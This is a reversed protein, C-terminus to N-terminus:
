CCAGIADAHGRARVAVAPCNATRRCTPAACRGGAQAPRDPTNDVRVFFTPHFSHKLGITTPPGVTTRGVDTDLYAAPIGRDVAGALLARAFTTKGSDMSGLLLVAGPDDLVQEVLRAYRDSM